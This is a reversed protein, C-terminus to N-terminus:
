PRGFGRVIDDQLQLVASRAWLVRDKDRLSLPEAVAAQVAARYKVFGEWIRDEETQDGLQHFDGLQECARVDYVTFEEPWLVTLIASSMPLKFGWEQMLTRLRDRAGVAVYLSSTLHRVIPELARRGGPDMRRLRKAITSKARNAKWIVISFFDFAGLSGDAHFRGHVDEFLYRELDYFRLPDPLPSVPTTGTV